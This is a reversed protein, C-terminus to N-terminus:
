SFMWWLFAHKCTIRNCVVKKTQLVGSNTEVNQMDPNGVRQVTVDIYCPLVRGQFSSAIHVRYSMKPLNPSIIFNNNKHVFIQSLRLLIEDM